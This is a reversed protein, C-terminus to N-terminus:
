SLGVGPAGRCEETVPRVFALYLFHCVSSEFKWVLDGQCPPQSCPLAHSLSRAGLLHFSCLYHFCSCGGPGHQFSDLAGSGDHVVNGLQRRYRQERM